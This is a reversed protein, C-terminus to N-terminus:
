KGVKNISCLYLWVFIGFLMGTTSLLLINEANAGLILAIITWINGFFFMICSFIIPNPLDSKM